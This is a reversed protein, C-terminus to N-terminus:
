PVSLDDKESCSRGQKDKPRNSQLQKLFAYIWGNPKSVEMDDIFQRLRKMTYKDRGRSGHRTDTADTMLSRLKEREVTSVAGQGLLEVIHPRSILIVESMRGLRTAALIRYINNISLDFQVFPFRKKLDEDLKRKVIDWVKANFEAEVAQGFYKPINEGSESQLTPSQSYLVAEILYDKAEPSLVTVDLGVNHVLWENAAQREEKFLVGLKLRSIEFRANERDNELEHVYTLLTNRIDADYETGLFNGAIEAVYGQGEIYSERDVEEAEHAEKVHVLLERVREHEGLQTYVGMAELLYSKEVDSDTRAERHLSEYVAAAPGLVDHDRYWRAIGWKQAWGFTVNHETEFESWATRRQDATLSKATFSLKEFIPDFEPPCPIDQCCRELLELLQKDGTTGAIEKESFPSSKPSATILDDLLHKTEEDMVKM